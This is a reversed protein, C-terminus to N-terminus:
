SECLLIQQEIETWTDQSVERAAQRCQVLLLNVRLYSELEKQEAESLYLLQPDLKFADLWTEQIRAIFNDRDEQSANNGPIRVNLAELKATLRTFDLGVVIEAQALKPVRALANKIAFDLALDRDQNRGIGLSFALDRASTSSSDQELVLVSNLDFDLNIALDRALDKNRDYKQLFGYKQLFDYAFYIVVARKAAPKYDGASGDTIQKAWFTLKKLKPSTLFNSSQGAIEQLLVDAKKLGSLMLFVERWRDDSAQRTILQQVRSVDDVIYLAALFEQFTLHSFSYVGEAQEVLIGHQISISNLVSVGDISKEDPLLKGLIKEIQIALEREDLFLHNEQFSDYAIESLLLKKRKTDLGQYIMLDQPLNKEERWRELLIDLTRGYLAARNSPLQNDNQYVICIFTLLLPRHALEKTAAYERDSLKKWLEEGKKSDSHFWSQIFNQIQDNDFDAIAIDTFRQFNHRYAASRCSAIFRNEPYRDVFDQIETVLKSRLETPVEDLGDLLILLKGRELLGETLKQDPLDPFHCIEFEKTIEGLLDIEKTRFRKLELFIPICEHLFGQDKKGKLAELGIKRLFTTKGVGPEGLVMLYQKQNAFELGPRKPSDKFLHFLLERQESNKYDWELTEISAFSQLTSKDLVQVNTYVNELSVPELMGLIKLTGHREKYSQVYHGSAMSILRRVREDLRINVMDWGTKIILGALTEAAKMLIPELGTM